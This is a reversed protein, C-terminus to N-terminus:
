SKKLFDAVIARFEPTSFSAKEGAIAYDLVPTTMAELHLNLARKTDQVAQPPLAALREALSLAEDVLDEHAVVRNALGLSVADEPSIKTGLLIHEKAKLMSTLFPWALSGGDAAVLGVAVHPDKLYSRDSMLVLDSLTALASGLGVAAGNVAAVVPLKFRLIATVLARANEIEIDVQAPDDLLGEFMQFDGGSCFAKGAGTLVVARATPDAALAAWVDILGRHMDAVVSNYSEPRNLTVIRVAGRGEVKVSPPMGYHSTLDNLEM